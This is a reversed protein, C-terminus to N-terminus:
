QEWYRKWKPSKSASWWREMRHLFPANFPERKHLRFRNVRHQLKLWCPRQPVFNWSSSLIRWGATLRWGGDKKTTTIQCTFTNLSNLPFLKRFYATRWPSSLQHSSTSSGRLRMTPKVELRCATSRFLCHRLRGRHPIRAMGQISRRRQRRRSINPSLIICSWPFLASQSM